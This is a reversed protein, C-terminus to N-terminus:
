IHIYTYIYIHIYTYIYIHIYTYIYIRIYTLNGLGVSERRSGFVALVAGKDRRLWSHRRRDGCRFSFCPWMVGTLHFSHTSSKFEWYYSFCCCLFVFVAFVLVLFVLWVFVVFLLGRPFSAPLFRMVMQSPFSDKLKCSVCWMPVLIPRDLPSVM